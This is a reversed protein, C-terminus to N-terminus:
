AHDRLCYFLEIKGDLKYDNGKVFTQKMSEMWVANFIGTAKRHIFNLGITLYFVVNGVYYNM